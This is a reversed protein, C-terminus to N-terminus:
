QLTKAKLTDYEEKSIVGADLLDKLKKLEDAIGSTSQNSVNTQPQSISTQNDKARRLEKQFSQMEEESYNSAKFAIKGGAYSIEFLRQKLVFYLITFIVAGGVCAVWLAFFFGTVIDVEKGELLFFLVLALVACVPSVIKMWWHRAEIFGTGTIDKLDVVREEKSNKYNNGSKYFCKGRFYVRKDSITCFGKDLSGTALFNRLYNGGLTAIQKENADVFMSQLNEM